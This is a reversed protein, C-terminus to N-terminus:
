LVNSALGNGVRSEGRRQSANPGSLSGSISGGVESKCLPCLANIRLWKDVCDKHFFHSCPLERLEDNNAYKGLCICCAADEGSIAREKETGIAVVGGESGGSNSERDNGSRSKKLKFKYTPLADISEPTAGRTQTAEERFGLISIICPLCCCITACLIFPMAYGICSFILFVVCLRYLNPAEDASSHGGFLWVNGVVFWVAFFCDLAIKFYEVLGKIRANLVRSHQSGVSSGVATQRDGAESNRTVSLSVPRAPVNIQSTQHSQTSDQESVQNRHHYRWYLLPLTAVCGSAYGVIWVFLPTRPHENRSLSLVVVSAVIQSATLVLEISIWLGSNLPSRRRRADGRRILSSNRSNLGNSSSVSPQLDPVRVSSSPRDELQPMNTSTSCRDYPLSSSSADGSGTIDIVHESSNIYEPRAMLLPCTDSQSECHLEVSPVDM